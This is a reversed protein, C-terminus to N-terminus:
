ALPLCPKTPVLSHLTLILILTTLENHNNGALFLMLGFPIVQDQLGLERAFPTSTNIRDHSYFASQWFDRFAQNITLEYPVLITEGPRITKLDISQDIIEGVITQPNSQDYEHQTDEWVRYFQSAITNADRESSTNSSSSAQSSSFFSAPLTTKRQLRAVGRNFISRALSSRM